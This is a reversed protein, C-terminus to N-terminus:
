QPSEVLDKNEQLRDTFYAARFDLKGHGCPSMMGLARESLRLVPPCYVRFDEVAKLSGRIRISGTM